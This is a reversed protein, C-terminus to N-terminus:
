RNAKLTELAMDAAEQVIDWRDGPTIRIIGCLTAFEEELLGVKRELRDLEEEVFSM